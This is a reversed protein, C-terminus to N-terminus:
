AAAGEALGALEDPLLRFYRWEDLQRAGLREYFRLSPENWDLCAWEMRGCGQELARRAASRLLAMGIGSGRHQPLVFIDELYLTPRALFSSYTYFFLSYGVPRGDLEALWTEFHPREGWGHELLRARASDDPPNLKEYHALATILELVEEADERAARRIIPDM